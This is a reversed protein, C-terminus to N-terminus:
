KKENEYKQGLAYLNDIDKRSPSVEFIREIILMKM